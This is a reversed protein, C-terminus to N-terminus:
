REAKQAEHRQSCSECALVEKVIEWGRGGPDEGDRRRGRGGRGGGGKRRDPRIQPPYAKERTELVVLNSKTKPPVM